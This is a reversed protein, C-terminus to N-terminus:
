QGASLHHVVMGLGFGLDIAICALLAIKAARMKEELSYKAERPILQPLNAMYIFAFVVANVALGLIAM